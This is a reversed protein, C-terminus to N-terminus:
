AVVVVVILVDLIDIRKISFMSYNHILYSHHQLQILILHIISVTALRHWNSHLREANRICHSVSTAM